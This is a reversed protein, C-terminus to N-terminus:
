VSCRPKQFPVALGEAREVMKHSMKILSCMRVPLPVQTDDVSWFRKFGMVDQYWKCVQHLLRSLTDSEEPTMVQCPMAARVWVSADLCRMGQHM